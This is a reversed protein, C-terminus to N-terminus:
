EITFDGQEFKVIIVAFTELTQNNLLKVTNLMKGMSPLQSVLLCDLAFSSSCLLVLMIVQAGLLSENDAQADSRISFYLCKNLTLM